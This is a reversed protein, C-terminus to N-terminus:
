DKGGALKTIVVLLHSIMRLNEDKISLKNAVNKLLIVPIAETSTESTKGSLKESDRWTKIITVLSQSLMQANEDRAGLEDAVDELLKVSVAETVSTDKGITETMKEQEDLQKTALDYAMLYLEPFVTEEKGIEEAYEWYDNDIEALKDLGHPGIGSEDSFDSLIDSVTDEPEERYLSEWIDLKEELREMLEERAKDEDWTFFPRSHCLVKEMFYGPDHVFGAFGQFTMNTANWAVLEGYDGSIYVRYNEEEFIFRVRGERSYPKKFDLIKINGFDQFTAKHDKFVNIYYERKKENM